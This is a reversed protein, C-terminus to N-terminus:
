KNSDGNGLLVKLVGPEVARAFARPAQALPFRDSIMEDLRLKGGALLKLAPEFRGCRSGLLTIENVVVPATDIGGADTETSTSLPEPRAPTAPVTVFM